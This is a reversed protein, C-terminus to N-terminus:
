LGPDSHRVRALCVSFGLLAESTYSFFSESFVLVIVVVFGLVHVERHEYASGGATTLMIACCYTIITPAALFPM